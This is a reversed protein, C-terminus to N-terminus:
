VDSPLVAAADRRPSLRRQTCTGPRRDRVGAAEPRTFVGASFWPFGQPSTEAGFWVGTRVATTRRPNGNCNFGQMVFAEDVGSRPRPKGNNWRTHKRVRRRIGAIPGPM